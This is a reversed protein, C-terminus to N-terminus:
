IAKRVATAIAAPTLGFVEILEEYTASHIFQKDGNADLTNITQVNALGKLSATNRHRYLVKLFNQWIYGNNQEAFFIPLGTEYLKILLDEDISPMDIVMIGISDKACLDAAALAEHVGRGSSIVIAKDTDSQRVVYGKGYEFEYDPGYLVASGTRMVRVYMLGRNGEMIWKVISLMQQPCSVDLVKLHAVADFTTNDDNGMHTAGNTRTEFNAATALFTIDLGHGESLWGDKAAIAELREQHGVAIRRLVQWNFFPCFTSCWANYGLAGFAESLLMMNAEAVGANLARAQDVAAIGAELGSTSALDSDISTVRSDRAFVKMSATVIEAASYSKSKDLKPLASADYAIKKDRPPVRRTLVPGLISNLFPRNPSEDTALHMRAAESLLLERMAEGEPGPDLQDLFNVFEEVRATRQAQQLELEQKLLADPVTVKHKNLFDSFAGFGKRSNCIIVTPRGNRTDYRFSELAAFVADYRTADVNRVNWGFGAFVDGLPPMPYLMRDHIDLQGNNRDVLVCLNDLSHQGAYMIAEWCSGEQLEGDGVMCYSDFRPSKRGAVAFGQAVGLGQGMPGTAIHVGPLVPGPHGNLLSEHSRSNHLLKEEFYGLEAYISALAAVAHGKSLTFIDQGRRTPDAIDLRIFGGYFLSVLPLIASLAGGSHLGKDVADRSQALTLIRIDSDKIALLKLIGERFVSNRHLYLERNSTRIETSTQASPSM